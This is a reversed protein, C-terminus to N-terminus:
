VHKVGKMWKELMEATQYPIDLLAGGASSKVSRQFEQLAAQEKSLKQPLNILAPMAPMAKMRKFGKYALTGAAAMIVAPLILDKLERWSSRRQEKYPSEMFEMSQRNIM